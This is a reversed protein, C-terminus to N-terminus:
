NELPSMIGFLCNVVLRIMSGFDLVFFFYGHYIRRQYRPFLIIDGETVDNTMSLLLETSSVVSFLGEM